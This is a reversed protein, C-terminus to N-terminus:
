FAGWSEGRDVEVEPERVSEPLPFAMGAGFHDSIAKFEEPSHYHLHAYELLREVGVEHSHAAHLGHGNLNSSNSYGKAIKERHIKDRSAKVAATSGREIKTQGGGKKQDLRGWRKILMSAGTLAGHNGVMLVTEYFKTGGQHEM